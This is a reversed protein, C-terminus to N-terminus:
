PPLKLTFRDSSHRSERPERSCLQYSFYNEKSQLGDAQHEGRSEGDRTLHRLRWGSHARASLEPLYNAVVGDFSM